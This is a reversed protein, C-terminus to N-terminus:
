KLLLLIFSTFGFTVGGISLGTLIRNRNRSKKFEKSMGDIIEKQNNDINSYSQIIKDKGDLEKKLMDTIKDSQELSIKYKEQLIIFSDVVEMCDNLKNTTIVLSDFQIAVNEAMKRNMTFLTDGEVIILGIIPPITDIKVLDKGYSLLFNTM